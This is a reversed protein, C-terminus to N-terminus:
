KLSDSIRAIYDKRIALKNGAYAEAPYEALQAATEISQQKLDEEAVVRDLFGADVAQDPNFLRAQIVAANLHRRSLRANALELGFVPLTMGIATENMGLKFDGSCGIRTDCSLLMFAGAAIAHGTCAGLLPQPHSFMRLLMHAGAM